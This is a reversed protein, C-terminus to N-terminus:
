VFLNKALDWELVSAVIPVVRKGYQLLESRSWHSPKDWLWCLTRLWVLAFYKKLGRQLEGRAFPRRKDYARLFEVAADAVFAGRANCCYEVLAFGVDLLLPGPMAFDFDVLSLEDSSEDYLLNSKNQICANLMQSFM